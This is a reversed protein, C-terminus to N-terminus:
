PVYQEAIAVVRGSGITIWYQSQAGRYDDGLTKSGADDFSALFDALVGKHGESCSTPCRVVKVRAGPFLSLTRLTKEPNRVYYDNPVPDGPLVAGDAEAARQAANGVLFEAVDFVITPPSATADVARIYGFWRGDALLSPDPPPGAAAQWRKVEDIDATVFEREGDLSVLYLGPKADGAGCIGGFFFVGARGDDNWGVAVTEVFGGRHARAVPRPKGTDVPVFYAIPIECEATWQALLTRGDPSPLANVWRGHRHPRVSKLWGPVPGFAVSYTLPPPPDVSAKTAARKAAPSSDDGGCGALLVLAALLAAAARGSMEFSDM